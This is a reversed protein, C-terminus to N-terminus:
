RDPRIADRYQALASLPFHQAYLHYHLYFVRPFGTGSWTHQQWAGDANQARMLYSIGRQVCEERQEGAAILGILAWATQSPTSAGLGALAPEDYSAISEGWGGDVNQRAILWRVARQVYPATMDAGIARLGRLVQWTGYLYNVGWRGYWCGEPTQDRRIFALARRVAPHSREYGFHSLCELVRATIDATSPDIMANHDAFPVHTLFQKDNNRDFAGWGGDRNQMRLMWSLGRQQAAQQEAEPVAARARALVMLAMCTDDVDPYFENQMEFYWGGPATHPVREAWDGPKSCQKSLLWTAARVLAPQSPDVEAQLLAHCSLVTDWVPSLCPQVRLAASADRRLLGRLHGLQEVMLPHEDAYGLTKLAMVSNCMAPLIASLGESDALRQIMWDGAVSVARQRLRASWPLREYRKLARDVGFFFARWARARLGYRQPSLEAALGPTFLESVGCAEPIECQPKAAYLIALPVFITRSWSSMDYVCFPGANPLFMMEPPIAPVASWSYQGFLALHYKTYSNAAAPGGLRGIVARSRALHPANAPDGVLKLALYSLCSVSIEPPGGPYQSWGGEPLMQARLSCALEQSEADARRGLFAYLLIMYSELTADGELPACWFGQPEQRSLLWSSAREIAHDLAIFDTQQRVTLTALEVESMARVTTLETQFADMVFM